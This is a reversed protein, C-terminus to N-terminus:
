PDILVRLRLLFDKNAFHPHLRTTLIEAKWASCEPEFGSVRMSNNERSLTSPCPGECVNVAPGPGSVRMKARRVVDIVYAASRRPQGKAEEFSPDRCGWVLASFFRLCPRLVTPHADLAMRPDRGGCGIEELKMLDM